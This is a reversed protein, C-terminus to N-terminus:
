ETWLHLFCFIYLHFFIYYLLIIIYYFIYWLYIDVLWANQLWFAASQELSCHYFLLTFHVLFIFIMRWLQVPEFQVHFQCSWFTCKKVNQIAYVTCVLPNKKKKKQFHSESGSGRPYIALICNWHVFTSILSSFFKLLSDIVEFVEFLGDCLIHICYTCKVRICSLAFM